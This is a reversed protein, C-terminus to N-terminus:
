EAQKQRIVQCARALQYRAVEAGSHLNYHENVFDFVAGDLAARLEEPVTEDEIFNALQDAARQIQVQELDQWTRPPPPQLSCLNIIYELLRTDQLQSVALGADGRLRIALLDPTEEITQKKVAKRNRTM